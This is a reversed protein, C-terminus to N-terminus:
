RRPRGRARASRGRRTARRPAAPASTRSVPKVAGVRDGRQEDRASAASRRSGAARSRAAHQELARGRAHVRVRDAAREGGGRADDLDVVQVDPLDGRAERREGGVHEHRGAVVAVRM